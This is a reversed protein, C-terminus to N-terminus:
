KCAICEGTHSDAFADLTDLLVSGLGPLMAMFVWVSATNPNSCGHATLTAAKPFKVRALLATLLLELQAHRQSPPISLLPAQVNPTNICSMHTSCHLQPAHM